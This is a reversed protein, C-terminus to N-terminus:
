RNAQTEDNPLCRDPEYLLNKQQRMPPLPQPKKGLIDEWTIDRGAVYKQTYYKLINQADDVSLEEDGNVNAAKIQEDTLGTGKGAIRNTYAKLALQADEVSVTGDGNVDGNVLETAAAPTTKRFYDTANYVPFEKDVFEYVLEDNELRMTLTTVRFEEPIFPEDSTIKMTLTNGSASWVIDATMVPEGGDFDSCSMYSKRKGTGDNRLEYKEPYDILYQDPNNEDYQIIQGNSKQKYWAWEGVFWSEGDPAPQSASGATTTTTVSTTTTTASTTTTTATTTTTKATTTTVQATTTM